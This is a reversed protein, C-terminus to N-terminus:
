LENGFKFYSIFEVLVFIILEPLSFANKKFTIILCKIAFNHVRLLQFKKEKLCFFFNSRLHLTATNIYQNIYRPKYENKFNNTQLGLSFLM